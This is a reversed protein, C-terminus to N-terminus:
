ILIERLIIECMMSKRLSKADRHWIINRGHLLAQLFLFIYIILHM